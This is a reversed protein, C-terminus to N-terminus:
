RRPLRPCGASGQKNLSVAARFLQFALPIKEQDGLSLGNPELSGPKRRTVERADGSEELGDVILRILLEGCGVEIWVQKGRCEVGAGVADGEGM